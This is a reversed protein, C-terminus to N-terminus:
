MPPVHVALLNGALIYAKKWILTKTVGATSMIGQITGYDDLM